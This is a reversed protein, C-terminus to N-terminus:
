ETWAWTKFFEVGSASIVPLEDMSSYTVTYHVGNRITGFVVARNGTQPMTAWVQLWETGNVTVPPQVTPDLAGVNALERAMADAGLEDENVDAPLRQAIVNVNDKFTNRRKTDMVGTDVLEYEDQFVTTAEEWGAPVAYSYGMGTIRGPTQEPSGPASVAGSSPAAPGSTQSASSVSRTPEDRLALYTAGAGGLVGVAIAVGAVVVMVTNRSSRRRPAHAAPEDDDAWPNHGDPQGLSM